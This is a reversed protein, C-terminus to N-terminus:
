LYKSVFLEIATYGAVGGYKAGTDVRTLETLIDQVQEATYKKAALVYLKLKYPNMGAAEQIDNQNVGDKQMLTVTAIDTYTKAMMGLIMIPDLRRSKMEELALFAARKSKELIANSFAFTDCEPTSSVAEQIERETIEALSRAKALASLKDVENKLVTMNHGARFILARLTDASVGISQADFHKKLWSLLQADTSKPFSLINIKDKFRKVFKSEKKPTGLDVDGDAVLFALVAYDTHNVIDVLKELDNLESEKMKEFNPYKWEIMKYPEFMPPSMVDDILSAIDTEPGDYLAHNFTSFSDDTIVTDRLSGLYYRKLYDEEGSFIYCGVFRGDKLRAKFDNLEM